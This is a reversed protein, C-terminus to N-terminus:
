DEREDFKSFYASSGIDRASVGPPQDGGAIGAFAPRVSEHAALPDFIADYMGGQPRKSGAADEGKLDTLMREYTARFRAAFKDAAQSGLTALTEGLEAAAGYRCTSELVDLADPSLQGIWQQFAVAIAAPPLTGSTAPYFASIAENFRRQLVADIDGQIDLAYVVIQADTISQNVPLGGKNTWNFTSGAPGDVTTQNITTNWVPEAGPGSTFPGGTAPAQQVNGNADRISYGSNYSTEPEWAPPRKFTPFMGAIKDVTSYGATVAAM